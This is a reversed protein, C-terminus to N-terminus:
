NTAHVDIRHSQRKSDFSSSIKAVGFQEIVDINTQLHSSRNKTVFAGRKALVMPLLLQDALFEGVPADHSLYEDLQACARQAVREASLGREGLATVVENCHEFQAVISVANGPGCHMDHQHELLQERRLKYHNAITTNERAAVQMPLGAVRAHVQMKNQVGRALIEIANLKSPEIEVVVKGGGAPFFGPRELHMKIKAGMRELAPLFAFQIFDSSPASMVHTGGEIVLKSTRDACLLAPLITQLVLNVSGATGIKFNYVGGLNTQPSFELRTSGLEAGDVDACAIAAAAQVCTLHQRMLGPKSRGKRINEIRIPRAQLIALSLSTRLIQGGGEGKGGDIILRPSTSPKPSQITFM